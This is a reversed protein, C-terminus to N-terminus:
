NNIYIPNRKLFEFTAAEGKEIEDLKSYSAILLKAAQEYLAKESGYSALKESLLSVVKEYQGNEYFQAAQRLERENENQSFVPIVGVFILILTIILIKYSDIKM